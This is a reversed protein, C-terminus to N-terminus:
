STIIKVAYWTGFGGNINSLTGPNRKTSIGKARMVGHYTWLGDDLVMTFNKDADVSWTITDGFHDSGTHNTYLTLSFTQPSQKPGYKAYVTYNAKVTLTRPAAAAPNAAVALTAIALPVILWACLRRM